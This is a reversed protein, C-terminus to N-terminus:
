LTIVSFPCDTNILILTNLKILNKHTKSLTLKAYKKNMALLTIIIHITKKM